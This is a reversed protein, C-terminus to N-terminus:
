NADILVDDINYDLADQGLESYNLGVHFAPSSRFTQVASPPTFPQRITEDFTVMGSGPVAPDGSLQVDIAVRHWDGPKPSAITIKAPQQDVPLVVENVDRLMEFFTAGANGYNLIEEYRDKGNDDRFLIRLIQPSSNTTGGM